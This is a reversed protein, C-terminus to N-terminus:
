DPRCCRGIRLHSAEVVDGAAAEAKARRIALLAGEINALFARGKATLVLPRRGHDFLAVGLHEELSRIHHSVTSVSLGTEEAVAQLAGKDATIQFLELWKLSLDKQSAAAM